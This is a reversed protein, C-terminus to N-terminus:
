RIWVEVRMNRLAFKEDTNDAVPNMEGYGTMANTEIGINDLQQKVRLVRAESLLQARFESNQKNVFGILLIARDKNEPRAMYEQIRELDDLAKNDLQKEGPIFRFNTTLRYSREIIFRYGNPLDKAPEISLETLNQSVFGTKAVTDQGHKSKVFTLFDRAFINKSNAHYLYLRRSLPYDEIAISSAQPLMPLSEGDIIAVAQAAGISAFATFGIAGMESSVQKALQDNSEYRKVNTALQYGRSLVLASFTDFTGSKDDRAHISVALDPGGLQKWNTISGSFLEGVQAITLSPLELEPHTIIALGDIALVTETEYQTLNITPFLENETSKIPRSAAAIDANGEQIQKFGTGSGHAAVFIKILHDNPSRAWIEKENEVRTSKVDIATFHHNTLWATLLNPALEAGITNSGHIEFLYGNKNETLATSEFVTSFATIPLAICTLLTALWKRTM